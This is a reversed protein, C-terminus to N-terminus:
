EGKLIPYEGGLCGTCFNDGGASDVLGKLSLYELSDAGIEERIQEVTMNGGILNERSSTNIGLHCSDTVVPSAVRVHVEKAGADKIMKVTRKMTTGRVISDDVLIVKKGAINEKLVNLKIRVGKERMDQTPQIFTRGIYRNKVLGISYPIKSEEAYGIASITGSDPAGIVIDGDIYSEKALTKGAQLRAQYISENDMLSDPRSFYIIEFLCARTKKREMYLSKVGNEDIIVIEGPEIDRIFEAGITDFACTESALIYSGEFNGLVLPKIGFPDRAGILKDTTMLVFSYSGSIKELTKILADEICDQHYKAILNAIVETDLQSQFISGNEELEDRLKNGNVLSGDHAIALAGKRYGVVLPQANSTTNQGTSDYRVHGISINGRLREIADNTFIEHVLGLDKFYDMFGNNNVAIGASIQGRHQIAYLGYYVINSADTRNKSYIGVVGSM